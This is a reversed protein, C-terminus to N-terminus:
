ALDGHYLVATYTQEQVNTTASQNYYAAIGSLSTTVTTTYGRTAIHTTNGFGANGVAGVQTYDAANFSSAFNTEYRALEVDTLSSTNLSNRISPTGGGNFNVWSKASGNAVYEMAVSNNGSADKLTTVRLESAM